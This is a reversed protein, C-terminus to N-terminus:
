KEGGKMVYPDKETWRIPDGDTLSQAGFTVVLMGKKLKTGRIEVWDQTLNGIEIDGLEKVTGEDPDGTAIFLSKRPGNLKLASLPVVMADPSSYVVVRVTGFIGAPLERDANDIHLEVTFSHTVPHAVSDILAVTGTRKLPNGSDDKLSGIVVGIEDGVKIQSRHAEPIELEAVLTDMVAVKGILEGMNVYEGENRMKETLVGEGPSCVYSDHIMGLVRNVSARAMSKRTRAQDLQAGTSQAYDETRKLDRVAQDYSVQAEWFNEKLQTSDIRAFCEFGELHQLNRLAIKEDSMDAESPQDEGSRTPEIWTSAPLASALVIDGREYKMHQITGSMPARLEYTDIPRIVVPFKITVDLQQPEVPQAVVSRVAQIPEESNDAGPPTCAAILLIPTFMWTRLRM